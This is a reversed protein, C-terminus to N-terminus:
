VVSLPLRAASQLMRGFGICVRMRTLAPAAATLRVLHLPSAGDYDLLNPNAGAALLLRVIDVAGADVALHLPTQLVVACCLLKVSGHM